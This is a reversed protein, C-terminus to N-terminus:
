KVKLPCNIDKCTDLHKLKEIEQKQKYREKSKETDYYNTKYYYLSNLETILQKKTKM